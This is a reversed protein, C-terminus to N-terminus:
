GAAGRRHTTSWPLDGEREGQAGEPLHACTPRLRGLPALPPLRPPWKAGYSEFLCLPWPPKDHLRRSRSIPRMAACEVPATVCASATSCSSFFHALSCSASIWASTVLRRAEIFDPLGTADLLRTTSPWCPPHRGPAPRGTFAVLSAWASGHPWEEDSFNFYNQYYYTPPPPAKIPGAEGHRLSSIHKAEAEPKALGDSREPVAEAVCPDQRALSLFSRGSSV